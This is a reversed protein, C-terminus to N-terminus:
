VRISSDLNNLNGKLKELLNILPSSPSADPNNADSPNLVPQLKEEISSVIKTIDDILSMAKSNEGMM